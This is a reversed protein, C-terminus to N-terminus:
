EQDSSLDEKIKTSTPLLVQVTKQRKPEVEEMEVEDDFTSALNPDYNELPEFVEEEEDSTDMDFGDGIRPRVKNYEKRGSNGKKGDSRSGEGESSYNSILSIKNNELRRMDKLIEQVFNEDFLKLSAASKTDGSASSVSTTVQRYKKALDSVEALPHGEQTLELLAPMVTFANSPLQKQRYYKELGWESEFITHLFAEDHILTCLIFNADLHEGEKLQEHLEMLITWQDQTLAFILSFQMEKWVNCFSEFRISNRQDFLNLLKVCDEKFGTALYYSRKAM